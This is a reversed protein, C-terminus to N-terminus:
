FSTTSFCFLRLIYDFMRAATKVLLPVKSLTQELKKFEKQASSLALVSVAIVQWCM